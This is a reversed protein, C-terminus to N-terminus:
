YISSCSIIGMRIHNVNSSDSDPATRTRGTRTYNNDPSRFRYYYTTYPNLNSVDVTVTWDGSTDATYLGSQNINTFTSDTSIEWLVNLSDQNISDPTIHTWILVQSETPDSSAVGYLFPAYSSDAYMNAPLQAFLSPFLFSCLYIFILNKM